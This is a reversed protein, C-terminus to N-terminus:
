AADAFGLREQGVDFVTHFRSMFVDGLIWLPGAPKPIDLGMFGSICESEGAAGVQLVYDEPTLVFDKGAITFTVNPMHPIKDCDVVAQSSALFSLTDCITELNEEIEERTEHNAMAVKIYSVAVTCFQCFTDDQLEALLQSHAPHVGALLRRSRSVTGEASRASQDCLGVAACVEDAPLTVIAKMIEPVYQKV